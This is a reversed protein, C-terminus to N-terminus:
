EKINVIGNYAVFRGFGWFRFQCTFDNALGLQWFRIMNRRKGIPNMHYEVYSGFSEGGDVSICLDVRPYVAKLDQQQTVLFDGDQTVLFDGDQTVLNFHDGMVFQPDTTGQEMTFGVDTVTFYDQTQARIENCVRIRPIEEGDYTTYSTSFAYLNGNNPTIFYYQNRYFAVDSAIFYNGNEDSAHFFKDTNFDHFLSLNDQPDYFNIHYFLHGDKRFMFASCNAPNNLNGLVHDIGDTSLKRAVGGDSVLIVPGSQENQALWVVMNDIGAVSAPNICGYDINSGTNRQYPFIPNGLNFWPETVNQGLVYILNGGSPFRIVAQTQDPKTQILGIHADDNPWVTGDNQESLRWTNNAPPNFFTDQSSAVIFFTDHFTIFGPIFGLAASTFTQFPILASPNYIYINSGDSIAIQGANNEAIYVNSKNTMLTGILVAVIHYPDHPDNPNFIINTQYVNQGVVIIMRDLNNSTFVARGNPGLSRLIAEYGGYDVLWGDSLYMNYTKELSIKPYVGFTSSGAVNLPMSKTTSPRNIM